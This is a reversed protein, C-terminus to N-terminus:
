PASWEALEPAPLSGTLGLFKESSSRKLTLGPGSESPRFRLHEEDLTPLQGRVEATVSGLAAGDGSPGRTLMFSQPGSPQKKFLDLPITTTALLALLCSVATLSRQPHKWFLLM